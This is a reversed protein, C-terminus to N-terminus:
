KSRTPTPTWRMRAALRSIERDYAQILEFTWESGTSIPQRKQEKATM